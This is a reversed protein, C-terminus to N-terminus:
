TADIADAPFFLILYVFMKLVLLRIGSHCQSLTAGLWVQRCQWQARTRGQKLTFSSATAILSPTLHSSIIIVSQCRRYALILPRTKKYFINSFHKLIGLLLRPASSSTKAPESKSLLSIIWPCDSLPKFLYIIGLYMEGIEGVNILFTKMSHNWSFM